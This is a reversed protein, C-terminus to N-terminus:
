PEEMVFVLVSATVIARVLDLDLVLVLVFESTYCEAAAASSWCGFHRFTRYNETTDTDAGVFHEHEYGHEAVSGFM